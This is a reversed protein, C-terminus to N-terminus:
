LNGAGCPWAQINFLFDGVSGVLEYRQPPIKIKKSVGMYYYLNFLPIMPLEELWTQHAKKYIERRKEENLEKLGRDLLSDMRPNNFKAYNFYADHYFIDKMDYDIELLFGSVAVDFRSNKLYQLFTHYELFLPEVLINYPKLENRLFLVFDRRLKSESNTLIKLRISKKLPAIDFKVPEIDPNLLLFPTKVKEGRGALFKDLFSSCILINYFYKRTDKNIGTNKLNFILYTYGFKKYKLLTFKEQWASTDRYAAASEPQLEIIDIENNLLKLPAMRTSSVVTYEIFRYVAPNKAPNNLELIIKAPEKIRKIKYLGTGSFATNKCNGPTVNKIENANLIPFTLYNRWVALPEKLKLRLRYRDIKEVDAIFSLNAAYPYKFRSDKLFKITGVVDAAKLESGAAFLIKKKLELLIETGKKGVQWHATLGKQVKGKQDFYFLTSFIKNVVAQSTEDTVYVPNLSTPFTHIGVRLIDRKEGYAPFTLLNVILLLLLTKNKM